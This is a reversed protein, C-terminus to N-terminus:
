KDSKIAQAQLIKYLSAVVGTRVFASNDYLGKELYPLAAAERREGMAWAAIERVIISEDNLLTEGLLPTFEFEKYYILDEIALERLKYGHENKLFETLFPYVYQFEGVESLVHAAESRLSSTAENSLMRKLYSLGTSDGQKTLIGAVWMKVRPDDERILAAKLIDSNFPIDRFFIKQAALKRIEANEHNLFSNKIFEDLTNTGLKLMASALELKNLENDESDFANELTKLISKNGFDGICEAVKRRLLVDENDLLRILYSFALKEASHCLGEVAALKVYGEEQLIMRWLFSVDPEDLEGIVEAVNRRVEPDGHKAQMYLIKKLMDLKHKKHKRLLERYEFVAEDPTKARYAQYAISVSLCVIMIVLLWPVIRIVKRLISIRREGNM